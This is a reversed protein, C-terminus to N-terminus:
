AVHTGRRTHHHAPWWQLSYVTCQSCFLECKISTNVPVDVDCMKGGHNVREKRLTNHSFLVNELKLDTSHYARPTLYSQKNATCAILVLVLMSILSSTDHALIFYITVSESLISCHVTGTHILQISQLFDLAQMLQRAVDRVCELPLRKYDNRKVLDYLSIGLTEFVM